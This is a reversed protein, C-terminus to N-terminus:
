FFSCNQFQATATNIINYSNIKCLCSRSAPKDRSQQKRESRTSAYRTEHASCTPFIVNNYDWAKKSILFDKKSQRGVIFNAHVWLPRMWFANGANGGKERPHYHQSSLDGNPLLQTPMLYVSVPEESAQVDSLANNLLPQDNDGPSTINSSCYKAWRSLLNKVADTSRMYVFCGCIRESHQPRDHRLKTYKEWDDHVALFGDHAGVFEYLRPIYGFPDELLPADIDVHLINFGLSLIRYIYVPRICTTKYFGLSGYDNSESTDEVQHEVLQDIRVAHGPVRKLLYVYSQEDSAVMLINSMTGIREAHVVWNEAFDLFGCNVLTIVVTNELAISSIISFLETDSHKKEVTDYAHAFLPGVLLSITVLAM